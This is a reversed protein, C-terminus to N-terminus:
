CVIDIIRKILVYPTILIGVRGSIHRMARRNPMKFAGGMELFDALPRRGWRRRPAPNPYIRATELRWEIYDLGLPARTNQIRRMPM